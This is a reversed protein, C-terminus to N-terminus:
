RGGREFDSAFTLRLARAAARELLAGANALADDLSRPGDAIPVVVIGGTALAAEADAEVRGGFAVCRAGAARALAGVGAVTKGGLTQGDISGEGTFCIAADRLAEPLGRLAAVLEVGPAIRADAFAALGFGLGGAAGAGPVDRRDVGLTRAAVDAFRGLAADLDRVDAASAGKQPGFVASAGRAGCLPHDVDAAVEFTTTAVRPDFADLDISALSALSAGGPPLTRGDADLLRAGLAAILGAGGDNTASGGVAVVIRRAGADLAARVLEGTGYTSARRVDRDGAAVLALGSAAAMEVVAREGDFAFGAVVPVGLPGRVTREERRWGPLALFADVTGEGGDAM